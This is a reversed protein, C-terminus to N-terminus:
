GAGPQLRRITASAADGVKTLLEIKLHLRSAFIQLQLLDKVSVASSGLTNNSLDRLKIHDASVGLPDGISFKQSFTDIFRAGQGSTHQSETVFAKKSSISGINM